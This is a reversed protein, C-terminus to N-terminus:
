RGRFVCVCEYMCAYYFYRSLQAFLFRTTFNHPPLFPSLKCVNFM